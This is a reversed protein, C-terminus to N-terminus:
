RSITFSLRQAQIQDLIIAFRQYQVRDAEVLVAEIYICFAVDFDSTECLNLLLISIRPYLIIANTMVITADSLNQLFAIGITENFYCKQCEHRLIFEM